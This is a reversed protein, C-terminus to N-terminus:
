ATLVHDPFAYCERQLAASRMTRKGPADEISNQFILADLDFADAACTGTRDVRRHKRVSQRRSTARARAPQM